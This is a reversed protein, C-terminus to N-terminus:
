HIFALSHNQLQMENGIYAHKQDNDRAIERYPSEKSKQDNDSSM